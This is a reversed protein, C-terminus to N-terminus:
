GRSQTRSLSHSDIKDASPRTSISERYLLADITLEQSEGETRGGRTVGIEAPFQTSFSPSIYAYHSRDQEHVNVKHLRGGETPFVGM